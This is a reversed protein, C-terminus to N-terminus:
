AQKPSTVFKRPGTQETTKLADIQPKLLFAELAKFTVTCAKLFNRPGLLKQIVKLDISSVFGCAGIDLTWRTGEEIYTTDAPENELYSNLQDRAANYLKETPAFDDHLKKLDGFDDILSQPIAIRKDAM